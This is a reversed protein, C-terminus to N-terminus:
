KVELAVAALVGAFGAGEGGPLACVDDVLPMIEGRSLVSKCDIDGESRCGVYAFPACLGSVEGRSLVPAAIPDM